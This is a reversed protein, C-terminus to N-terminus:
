ARDLIYLEKLIQSALQLQQQKQQEVLPADLHYLEDTPISPTHPTHPTHPTQSPSVHGPEDTSPLTPLTPPTPLKSPSLTLPLFLM